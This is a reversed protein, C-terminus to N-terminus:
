VTDEWDNPIDATDIFLMGLRRTQPLYYPFDARGTEQLRPAVAAEGITEPHEDRSYIQFFRAADALTRFPQGMELERAERRYAIGLGDLRRAADDATEDTLPVQGVSFRHTRYDKKIVALTGRCQAKGIKLIEALRGFFSFVMADYPEEPPCALVDGLRPAVNSLGRERVLATLAAYAPESCDVATVRDFKEAMACALYGLGCGADCVSRAGPLRRALIDALQAHYDGCTSADAMFRIMDANWRFM